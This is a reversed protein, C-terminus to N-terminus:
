RFFKQRLAEFYAANHRNEPQALENMERDYAAAREQWSARASFGAAAIKPKKISVESAIQLALLLASASDGHGSADRPSEIRVGYSKEVARLRSLDRRLPECPYFLLRRDTISEILLSAQQQLNGPTPPLGRMFPLQGFRRRLNRRRRDTDAEIRQALLESQWPDFSCFQLTFKEDLALIYKEVEMLNIKKGLTPRWLMHDALQIRGAVGGDPIALTVIASCDRSLGLDVGAVYVFGPRKADHPRLDERFAAQVDAPDLVDGAGSSWVNDWLRAAATQPLLRRQAELTAPSIWSAQSGDLHSFYWAPDSKVKERIKHAFTQEFGANCIISLVCPRKGSTSLLSQWLREGRDEQWHTIEDCVIFGVLHGYSTAVDSSIIELSAGTRINYIKNAQVTLLADIWVNLRCLTEIAQKLLAAQDKDAAACIGRIPRTAFLLGWAVSVAIDSTKSHGRPRESWSSMVPPPKAEVANPARGAIYLWAPDMAKFDDDQWPDPKFPTPVGGADILLAARFAAPDTAMAAFTQANMEALAQKKTKVSYVGNVMAHKRNHGGEGRKDDLEL